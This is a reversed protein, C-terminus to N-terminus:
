KNEGDDKSEGVQLLAIIKDLKEKVEAAPIGIVGSSPGVTIRPGHILQFSQELRHIIEANMSRNNDAAARELRRRLAEAFRLKLQIEDTPNRAM